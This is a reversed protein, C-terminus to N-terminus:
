ADKRAAAECAPVPLNIGVHLKRVFPLTRSGRFSHKGDVLLFDGCASLGPDDVYVAQAACIGLRWLPTM